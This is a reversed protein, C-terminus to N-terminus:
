IMEIAHRLEEISKHTYTRTTLSKSAHGLLRDICVQNVGASDLLSTFTHRCDHPTHYTEIGIDKLTKKFLKTYAATSIPRDNLSFLIGHNVSLRNEVFSRIKSHIPVIRNKGAETKLGGKFTGAKLDIDEAPMLILESVRWGSYIYILISDVWPVDKKNWLLQLEEATFPIGPTDDESVTIAAYSAYGKEIIDNQLAFKDMQSFLNKIHEQLAHSLPRGKDNIQGLVGRFDNTRLKVTHANMYPAVIDMLPNPATYRVQPIPREAINMSIKTFNRM